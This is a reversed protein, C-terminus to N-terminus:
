ERGPMVKFIDISGTEEFALDCLILRATSFDDPNWGYLGNTLCHWELPLNWNIDTSLGIVKM